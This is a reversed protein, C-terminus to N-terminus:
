LCRHFPRTASIWADWWTILVQKKKKKGPAKVSNVMTRASTNVPPRLWLLLRSWSVGKQPDPLEAPQGIVSRFYSQRRASGNLLTVTSSPPVSTAWATPAQFNPQNRGDGPQNDQTVRWPPIAVEWFICISAGTLRSLLEIEACSISESILM